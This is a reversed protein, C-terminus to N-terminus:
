HRDYDFNYLNLTTYLMVFIIANQIFIYAQYSQSILFFKSVFYFLAFFLIFIKFKLKVGMTIMFFSTGWFLLELLSRIFVSIITIFTFNFDYVIDQAMFILLSYILSIAFLIPVYLKLYKQLLNNINHNMHNKKMENIKKWLFILYIYGPMLIIQGLRQLFTFSTLSESDKFNSIFLIDFGFFLLYLLNVMIFTFSSSMYRYLFNKFKIFSLKINKTMRLLPILHILPLVYHSFFLILIYEYFTLNNNKIFLIIIMLLSCLIITLNYVKSKNIIILIREIHSSILFLCFLSSYLIFANRLFHLKSIPLDSILNFKEFSLYFILFLILLFISIVFSISLSYIINEHLIERQKDYVVHSTANISGLDFFFYISYLSCIFLFITLLDKDFSDQLLYVTIFYLIFSLAKATINLIISGSLKTLLYQM